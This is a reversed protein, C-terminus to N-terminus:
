KVVAFEKFKKEMRRRINTVSMNSCGAVKGIERTTYGEILMDFVIRDRDNMDRRYKEIILETIADDEFRKGCDLCELISNGIDDGQGNDAKADYHMILENPVRKATKQKTFYDAVENFMCKYALTSFTGMYEKYYKAAKCLGIAALDYFEDQDYNHKHLFSYILNHNEEALQRQENTM